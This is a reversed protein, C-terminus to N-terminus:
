ICLKTYQEPPFYTSLAYKERLRHTSSEPFDFFVNIDPSMKKPGNSLRANLIRLSALQRVLPKM